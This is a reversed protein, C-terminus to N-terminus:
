EGSSLRQYFVFEHDPLLDPHFIAILDALILDPHAAGTEFYDSGGNTNMRLNNNWINGTEVARFSAFRSDDALMDETTMWFQNANVWFEADGGLEVVVEVDLPNSTGPEDAWLFDAGADALLQAITSDAGPMYWTGSYPSAAITTPRTDVDAALAQLAAYREAVGDFLETAVSETNFFLAVYKGWEAQGLPSTDAYDANLVAPIGAAELQSLTTGGAFFEQAMVLDPEATILVEFNIDGGSGGGGIEVIDGDAVMQIVTENSTFLTTDVGVLRDLMGQEDIHPLISTSMTVMRQVPVDFMPLDDYGEPAPTGCQVLVFQMPEEAGVWPVISVVKYNNFYEVDFNEAYDVNIKAPFYDVSADFEEVCGDTLNTEPMSDQASVTFTLLLM